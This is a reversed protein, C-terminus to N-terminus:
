HGLVDATDMVTLPQISSMIYEDAALLPKYSMATAWVALCVFCDLHSSVRRYVENTLEALATDACMICIVDSFCCAFHVQCLLDSTNLRCALM